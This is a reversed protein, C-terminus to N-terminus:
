YIQGKLNLNLHKTQNYIECLGEARNATLQKCITNNSAEIQKIM